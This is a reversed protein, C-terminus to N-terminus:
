KGEIVISLSVTKASNSRALQTKGAAGTQGVIDQEGDVQLRYRLGEVPTGDSNIIRFHQDHTMVNASQASWSAGSGVTGSQSEFSMFRDGQSAILTPPPDCKCICLDGDLLAEKGMMSMPWYPPVKQAHGESNCAPCHIRAGEYSVPVGDHTNNPVGDLVTGGATTKDGVRIFYRRM